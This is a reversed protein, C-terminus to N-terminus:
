EEEEEADDDEEDDDSGENFPDLFLPYFTMPSFIMLCKVDFDILFISFFLYYYPSVNCYRVM